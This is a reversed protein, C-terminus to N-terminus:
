LPLLVQKGIRVQLVRRGRRRGQCKLFTWLVSRRFSQHISGSVQLLEPRCFSPNERRSVTSDLLANRSAAESESVGDSSGIGFRGYLRARHHRHAAAGVDRKDRKSKFRTDDTAPGSPVTMALAMRRVADEQPPVPERCGAGASILISGFHADQVKHRVLVVSKM